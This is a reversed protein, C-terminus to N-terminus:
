RQELIRHAADQAALAMDGVIQGPMHGAAAIARRLEAV